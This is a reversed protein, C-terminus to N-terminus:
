WEGGVIWWEGRAWIDLKDSPLSYTVLTLLQRPNFLKSWRDIGYRLLEDTKLGAYVEVDPILNEWGDKIAEEAREVGALDAATPTRFELSGKGRKYAVAYLQHGFKGAQAQAKIVDDEIVSSCNPCKGM